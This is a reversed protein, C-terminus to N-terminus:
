ISAKSHIRSGFDFAVRRGSACDSPSALRLRVILCFYGGGFGAARSGWSACDLIFVTLRYLRSCAGLSWLSVLEVRSLVRGLESLLLRLLVSCRM